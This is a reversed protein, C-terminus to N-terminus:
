AAPMVGPCILPQTLWNCIVCPLTASGLNVEVYLTDSGGANLESPMPIARQELSMASKEASAGLTQTDSMSCSVTTSTSSLPVTAAAPVVMVTMGVTITAGCNVIVM